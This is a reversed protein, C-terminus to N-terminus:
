DTAYHEVVKFAEFIYFLSFVYYWPELGTPSTIKNEVKLVKGRRAGGEHLLIGVDFAYRLPACTHGM